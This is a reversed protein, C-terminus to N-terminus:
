TTTRSQKIELILKYTLLISMNITLIMTFSSCTNYLNPKAVLVSLRLAKINMTELKLFNKREKGFFNIRENILIKYM